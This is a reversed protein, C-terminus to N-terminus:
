SGPKFQAPKWEGKAFQIFAAFAIPGCDKLPNYNPGVLKHSRLQMNTCSGHLEDFLAAVTERLLQAGAASQVGDFYHVEQTTVQNSIKLMWFFFHNENQHVIGVVHTVVGLRVRQGLHERFRRDFSSDLRGLLQKAHLSGIFVVDPRARLLEEFLDQILTTTIENELNLLTLNHKSTIWDTRESAPPIAPDIDLAAKIAASEEEAFASKVRDVLDSPTAVAPPLSAIARQSGKSSLIALEDSDSSM